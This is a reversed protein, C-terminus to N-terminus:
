TGVARALAEDTHLVVRAGQRALANALALADEVTPHLSLPRPRDDATVTWGHTERRVHLESPPQVCRYIGSSVRMNAKMTAEDHACAALRVSGSQSSFPAIAAIAGGERCISRSRTAREEHDSATAGRGEM